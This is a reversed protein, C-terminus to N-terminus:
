DNLRSMLFVIEESRLKSSTLNNICHSLDFSQFSLPSRVLFQYINSDSITLTSERWFPERELYEPLYNSLEQSSISVFESNVGMSNKLAFLISLVSKGPGPLGDWIAHNEIKKMSCWDVIAISLDEVNAIQAFNAGANILIIQNQDNLRELYFNLRGTHDGEGLMIPLRLISVPFGKGRFHILAKEAELKGMLYNFTEKPVKNNTINIEQPLECAAVGGWLRPIWTSSILLFCNTEINEFVEILDSEKYCIFDVVLDFYAGKISKLGESRDSCIQRVKIRPNIRRSIVTVMWGNLIMLEVVRKGLFRTGGLILVKM